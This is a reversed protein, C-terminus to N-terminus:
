VCACACGRVHVYACVCVCVWVCEHARGHAHVCVRVHAGGERELWVYVCFQIRVVRVGGSVGVWGCVRVCACRVRVCACVCVCVCAIRASTRACMCACMRVVSRFVSEREGDVRGVSYAHMCAGGIEASVHARARQASSIGAVHFDNLTRTRACAVVFSRTLSVAGCGLCMRLADAHFFALANRACVCVFCARLAHM